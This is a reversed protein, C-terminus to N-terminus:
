AASKAPSPRVLFCAAKEWLAQDGIWDWNRCGERVLHLQRGTPSLSEGGCLRAKGCRGRYDPGVRVPPAVMCTVSVAAAFTFSSSWSSPLGSTARRTAACGPPQQPNWYEM